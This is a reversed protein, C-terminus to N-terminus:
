EMVRVERVGEIIVLAEPSWEHERPTGASAMNVTVTTRGRNM